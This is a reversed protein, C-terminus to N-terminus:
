LNNRVMGPWVNAGLIQMFDNMIITRLGSTVASVTEFNWKGNAGNEDTVLMETVSVFDNIEQQLFRQVCAVM